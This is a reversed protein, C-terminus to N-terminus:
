NISMQLQFISRYTRHSSLYLATPYVAGPLSAVVHVTIDYYRCRVLHSEDVLKPAETTFADARFQALGSFDVFEFYAPCLHPCLFHCYFPAQTLGKWPPFSYNHFVVDVLVLTSKRILCTLTLAKCMRAHTHVCLDGLQLLPKSKGFGSQTTM